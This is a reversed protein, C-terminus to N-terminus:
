MCVILLLCISCLSLTLACFTHLGEIEANSKSIVNRMCVCLDLMHFRAFMMGIGFGLSSMFM